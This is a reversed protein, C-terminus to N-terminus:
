EKNGHVVEFFTVRQAYNEPLKNTCQVDTFEEAQIRLAFWKEVFSTVHPILVYGEQPTLTICEIPYEVPLRERLFSHANESNCEISSPVDSNCPDWSLNFRIHISNNKQNLAAISMNKGVGQILLVPRPSSLREGSMKLMRIMQEKLEEPSLEVGYSRMAGRYLGWFVLFLFVFAVFVVIFSVFFWKWHPNPKHM